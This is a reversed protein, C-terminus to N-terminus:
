RSLCFPRHLHSPPSALDRRGPPPKAILKKTFGAGNPGSHGGLGQDLEAAMSSGQPQGQCGARPAPGLLHSEVGLSIIDATPAARPPGRSNPVNPPLQCPFHPGPPSVGPSPLAPLSAEPVIAPTGSGPLLLPLVPSPFFPQPLLSPDQAASFLAQQATMTFVSPGPSCAEARSCGQAESCQSPTCAVSPTEM